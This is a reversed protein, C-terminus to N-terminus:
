ENLKELEVRLWEYAYQYYESNSLISQSWLNNIDTQNTTLNSICILHSYLVLYYSGLLNNYYSEKGRDNYMELLIDTKPFANFCYYPKGNFSPYKKLDKLAAKLSKEDAISMYGKIFKGCTEMCRLFLIAQGISDNQIYKNLDIDVNTLDFPRNKNGISTFITSYYEDILEIKEIDASLLSDVLIEPKYKVKKHPNQYLADFIYVLRLSFTDPLTLFKDTLLLNNSKTTEKAFETIFNFKDPYDSGFSNLEKKDPSSGMLYKGYFNSLEIIRENDSSQSLSNFSTIGIFISLIIQKYKM